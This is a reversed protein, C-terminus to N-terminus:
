LHQGHWGVPLRHDHEAHREHGFAPQAVDEERRHIGAREAVDESATVHRGGSPHADHILRTSGDGTRGIRERARHCRQNSSRRALGLAPELAQIRVTGRRVGDVAARAGRRPRDHQGNGRSRESKRHGALLPAGQPRAQDRNEPSREEGQQVGPAQDSGHSPQRAVRVRDPAAGRHGRGRGSRDVLEVVHRAREELRPAHGLLAGLFTILGLPAPKAQEFRERRRGPQDVPVRQADDVGVLRGPAQVAVRALLKAAHVDALEGGGALAEIMLPELRQDRRGRRALDTPVPRLVTRIDLHLQGGPNEARLLVARGHEHGDVDGRGLAELSLSKGLERALLGGPQLRRRGGRGGGVLGRPLPNEGLQADGDQMACRQLPQQVLGDPGHRGRELDVVDLDELRLGISRLKLKPGAESPLRAGDTPQDRVVATVGASGVGKDGAAGDHDVVEGLLRPEGRQGPVTVVADDAAGAHDDAVGLAGESHEADVGRPPAAEEGLVDAQQLGDGVDQGPHDGM